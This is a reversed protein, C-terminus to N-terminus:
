ILALSWHGPDVVFSLAVKNLGRQALLTMQVVMRQVMGLPWYCDGIRWDQMRPEMEVM